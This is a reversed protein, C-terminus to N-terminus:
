HWTLFYSAMTENKQREVEQSVQILTSELKEVYFQLFQIDSQCVSLLKLSSQLDGISTAISKLVESFSKSEVIVPEECIKLLCVKNNRQGIEVIHGTAVLRPVISGVVSPYVDDFFNQQITNLAYPYIFTKNKVDDPISEWVECTNKTHSNIDVNAPIYSRIIELYEGSLFDYVNSYRVDTYVLRLYKIAKVQIAFFNSQTYRLKALRSLIRKNYINDFDQNTSCSTIM